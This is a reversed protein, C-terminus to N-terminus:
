GTLKRGSATAESRGMKQKWERGVRRAKLVDLLEGGVSDSKVRGQSQAAAQVHKLQARARHLIGLTNEMGDDVEDEPLIDLCARAERQLRDLIPLKVRAGHSAYARAINFSGQELSTVLDEFQGVIDEPLDELIAKLPKPAQRTSEIVQEIVYSVNVGLGQDAGSLAKAAYSLDKEVRIIVGRAKRCALQARRQEPSVGLKTQLTEMLAATGTALEALHAEDGETGLSSQMDAINGRLRDLEVTVDVHTSETIEATARDLELTATEVLELASEMVENMDLDEELDVDGIEVELEMDEDAVIGEDIEALPNFMQGHMKGGLEADSTTRQGGELMWDMGGSGPASVPLKGMGQSAMGASNMTGLQLMM